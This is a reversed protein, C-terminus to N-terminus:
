KDFNFRFNHLFLKGKSQLCTVDRGGKATLNFVFSFFGKEKTGETEGCGNWRFISPSKKSLNKVHNSFNKKVSLILFGIFLDFFHSKQERIM